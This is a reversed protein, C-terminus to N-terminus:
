EEEQDNEDKYMWGTLKEPESYSGVYSRAKEWTMPKLIEVGTIKGRLYDGGVQYEINRKTYDVKRYSKIIVDKLEVEDFNAIINKLYLRDEGAPGTKLEYIYILPYGKGRYAAYMNGEIEKRMVSDIVCAPLFSRVSANEKGLYLYEKEEGDKTVVIKTPFEVRWKLKYPVWEEKEEEEPEDEEDFLPDEDEYDDEDRTALWLFYAFTVTLMIFFLLAIVLM